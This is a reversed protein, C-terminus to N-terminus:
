CSCQQLHHLPPQTHPPSPVDCGGLSLRMENCECPFSTPSKAYELAGISSHSIQVFPLNETNNSSGGGSGGGSSGDDSQTPAPANICQKRPDSMVLMLQMGLCRNAILPTRATNGGGGGGGGGGSGGDGDAGDASDNGGGGSGDSGDSGNNKHVAHAVVLATDDGHVALLTQLDNLTSRMVATQASSGAGGAGGAGDDNDLTAAVAAIDSAVRSIDGGHQNLLTQMMTCVAPSLSVVPTAAEAGNIDDDEGGGEEGVFLSSTMSMSRM